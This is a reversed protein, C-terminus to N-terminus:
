RHHLKSSFGARFSKKKGSVEAAARGDMDAQADTDDTRNHAVVVSV